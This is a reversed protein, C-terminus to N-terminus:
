IVKYVYKYLANKIKEFKDKSIKKGSTMIKLPLSNQGESLPPQVYEYDNFYMGNREYFRIRRRAIDTTPPEVELCLPKEFLKATEKLMKSGLGLGRCSETLAFHEVYVFDDFEWIAIFGIIKGKQECAFVRYEPLAFLGRQEEKKRREDAPFSECMIEFIEEFRDVYIEKM